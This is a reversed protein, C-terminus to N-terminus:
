VRRLRWLGMSLLERYPLTQLIDSPRAERWSLGQDAEPVSEERPTPFAHVKQHYKRREARNSM